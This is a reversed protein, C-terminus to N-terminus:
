MDATVVRNRGAHKAKYLAADAVKILTDSHENLGPVVTAVGISLSVHGIESASHPIALAAVSELIRSAVIMAGDMGTNPLIVSFEEGGYRALMDSPRFVVTAASEAVQRLCADGHQHGYTDNYRKFHDVDVMLLSIPTQDRKGRLWERELKEDFSRRNAIGTLGDRAALHELALQARKHDTMDRITEVVAILHGDGDYVAGADVTLYLEHGLRPMVCWNSAHYGHENTGGSDSSVYLDEIEGIRGQVLLDALCPRPADYFARWHDSTGVLEGAEVGTLRECARNWILVRCDADLVFTPVVLHQMLHIAFGHERSASSTM